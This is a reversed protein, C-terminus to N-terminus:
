PMGNTSFGIYNPSGFSSIQIANLTIPETILVSYTSLNNFLCTPDGDNVFQVFGDINNCILSVNQPSNQLLLGFTAALVYNRYGLPIIIQLNKFSTNDFPLINSSTYIVAGYEKIYCVRNTGGSSGSSVILHTGAGGTNPSFTAEPVVAVGDIRFLGNGFNPPIIIEIKHYETGDVTDLIWTGGGEINVIKLSNPTITSDLSLSIGYRYNGTLGSAPPLDTSNCQLGLFVGEEGDIVDLRGDFFYSAGFTYINLWDADNLAQTIHAIGGGDDFIRVVNQGGDEVIEVTAPTNTTITWAGNQPDRSPLGLQGKFVYEQYGFTITSLLNSDVYEKNACNNDETPTNVNLPGTMTGGSLNLKEDLKTDTYGKHVADTSNVPEKLQTLTNFVMEIDGSMTGGALSLKLDLADNVYQVSTASSTYTPPNELGYLPNNNMFLYGDMTDGSLSVKDDIESQLNNIDIIDLKSSVLQKISNTKVPQSALLNAAGITNGFLTASGDSLNSDEGFGLFKDTM